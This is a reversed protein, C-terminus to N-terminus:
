NILELRNTFEVINGIRYDDSVPGNSADNDANIDGNNTDKNFGPPSNVQLTTISTDIHM